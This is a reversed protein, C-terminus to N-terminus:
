AYFNLIRYLANTLDEPDLSLNVRFGTYENFKIPIYSVYDKNILTKINEIDMMERKASELYITKYPSIEDLNCQIHINPFYQMINNVRNITNKYWQQTAYVCEIFNDSLFHQIAVLNSYLLSGSLIDIWQELFDDNKKPCILASFKIKNIFLPKHPSCISFFYNSIPIKSLLMQNPLALSEDAIILIKESILKKIINIQSDDFSIGTSYAPSTLWLVDFHHDLIYQFPICYKDRSYQLAIKECPFNCIKCSQEVSFYSPTLIGLKHYNHMKLFNITNLITSTGSSNLLCMSNLPNQVCLKEMIQARYKKTLDYTYTYDFIDNQYNLQIYKEMYTKYSYSPNWNSVNTININELDKKKKELEFIKDLYTIEDIFM